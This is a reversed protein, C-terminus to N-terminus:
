LEGMAVRNQIYRKISVRDQKTISSFRVGAHYQGSKLPACWRYECRLNLDRITPDGFHLTITAYQGPEVEGKLTLRAGSLSIDETTAEYGPLDSSTIRVRQNLRFEGRRELQMADLSFVEDAVKGRYLDEGEDYSLIEVEVEIHATKTPAAVKRTGLKLKESARFHLLGDQFMLPHIKPIPGRPGFFIKKITEWQEWM